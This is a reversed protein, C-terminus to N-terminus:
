WTAAGEIMNTVKVTNTAFNRKWNGFGNSCYENSTTKIIAVRKKYTGLTLVWALVRAKETATGVIQSVNGSYTLNDFLM